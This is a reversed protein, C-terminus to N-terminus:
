EKVEEITVKYTWKRGGPVPAPEAGIVSLSTDDLWGEREEVPKAVQAAVWEPPVPNYGEVSIVRTWGLAKEALDILVIKGAEIMAIDSGKIGAGDKVNQLRNVKMRAPQPVKASWYWDFYKIKAM